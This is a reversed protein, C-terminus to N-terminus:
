QIEEIKTPNKLLERKKTDGQVHVTQSDAQEREQTERLIDTLNIILLRVLRIYDGRYSLSIVIVCRRSYIYIIRGKAWLTQTKCWKWLSRHNNRLQIQWIKIHWHLRAVETLTPVRSRAPRELLWRQLEPLVLSQLQRCLKAILGPSLGAEKVFPIPSQKGPHFIALTQTEASKGM